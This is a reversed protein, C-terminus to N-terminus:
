FMEADEFSVENEVSLVQSLALGLEKAIERDKLGLNRLERVRDPFIDSAKKFSWFVGDEDASFQVLQSEVADGFLDRGKEFILEFKAGERMKYDQPRELRLVVDMSQTMRSTGLYSGSKGAHHVMVTSKGKSTIKINWAHFFQWLETDDQRKQFPMSLSCWNDFVILDAWDIKDELQRQIQPNAINPPLKNSCRDYTVIRILDPGIDFGGYKATQILREKTRELGMEGEIVLVKRPTHAKWFGFKSGSAIAGTIGWSLHTKGVGTGAYILTRGGEFIIPWLLYNKPKTETSIIEEATFAPFPDLERELEEYDTQSLIDKVM